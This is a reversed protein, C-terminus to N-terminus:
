FCCPELNYLSLIESSSLEKNFIIVDDISGTFDLGIFIDGENNFSPGFASIDQSRKSKIGNKYLQMQSGNFTCVLHHWKESLVSILEDCEFNVDKDDRLFKGGVSFEAVRCDGLGVSWNPLFNTNDNKTRSLLIELDGPARTNIPKYWLSISFSKTNVGNTFDGNTKLYSGDAKKFSYACNQNGNRDETQSSKNNILTNSYKSYDILSGSSFPYFAIINKEINQPLCSINTPDPDCAIAM